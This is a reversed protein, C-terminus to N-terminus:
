SDHFLWFVVYNAGGVGSPSACEMKLEGGALHPNNSKILFPTGRRRRRRRVEGALAKM